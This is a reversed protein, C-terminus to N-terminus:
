PQDDPEGEGSRYLSSTGLPLEVGQRYRATAKHLVDSLFMATLDTQVFVTERFRKCLAQKRGYQLHLNLHDAISHSRVPAHQRERGPKCWGNRMQRKIKGGSGFIDRADTCVPWYRGGLM